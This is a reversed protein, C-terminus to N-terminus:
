ETNGSKQMLKIPGQTLMIFYCQRLWTDRKMLVETPRIRLVRERALKEM